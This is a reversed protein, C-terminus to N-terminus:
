AAAGTQRAAKAARAPALDDLHKVLHASGTPAVSAVLRVRGFRREATLTGNGDPVPETGWSDAWEHLWRLKDPHDLGKPAPHQVTIEAPIIAETHCAIHAALDALDQAIDCRALVDPTIPAITM